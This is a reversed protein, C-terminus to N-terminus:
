KKSHHYSNSLQILLMSDKPCLAIGIPLAKLMARFVRQICLSREM